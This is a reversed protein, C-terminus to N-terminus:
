VAGSSIDPNEHGGDSLCTMADSFIMLFEADFGVGSVEDIGTSTVSDSSGIKFDM